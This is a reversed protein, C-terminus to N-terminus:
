EEERTGQILCSILGIKWRMRQSAQIAEEEWHEIIRKIKPNSKERYEKEAIRVRNGITQRTPRYGDGTATEAEEDQSPSCQRGRRSRGAAVDRGRRGGRGRRGRGRRYRGRDRGAGNMPSGGEDEGNRTAPKNRGNRRVEQVYEERGEAMDESEGESVEYVPIGQQMCDEMKRKGKRDVERRGQNDGAGCSRMWRQAKGSGEAEMNERRSHNREGGERSAPRGTGRASHSRETCGLRIERRDKGRPKSRWGGKAIRRRQMGRRRINIRQTSVRIGAGDNRPRTESRRDQGGDQRAVGSVKGGCWEGTAIIGQYRGANAQEARRRFM